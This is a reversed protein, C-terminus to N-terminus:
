SKARSITGVSHYANNTLYKQHKRIKPQLESDSRPKSCPPKIGLVSKARKAEYQTKPLSARCKSNDDKPGKAPNEM